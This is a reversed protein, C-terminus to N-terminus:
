HTRYELFVTVNVRREKARVLEKILDNAWDHPDDSDYIMLYMAVIISRNANRIDKILSHYYDKDVLICAEYKIAEALESLLKSYSSNLMTLNLLLQNYKEKLALYKSQVDNYDIRLRLLEANLAVNEWAVYSLSAACILLLVLLLYVLLKQRSSSM